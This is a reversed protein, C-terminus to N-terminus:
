PQATQPRAQQKSTSAASAPSIPACPADSDWRWATLESWPVTGRRDALAHAPVLYLRAGKMDHLFFCYNGGAREIQTAYNWQDQSINKLPFGKAEKTEKCEVFSMWGRLVLLTDSPKPTTRVLKKDNLGYLDSADEIRYLYAAKGLKKIDSALIGETLKGKPKV